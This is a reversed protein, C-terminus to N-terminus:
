GIEARRRLGVEQEADFTPFEVVLRKAQRRDQEVAAVPRDRFQLFHVLM